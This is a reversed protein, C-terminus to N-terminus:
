WCHGVPSEQNLNQFTNITNRIKNNTLTNERSEKFTQLIINKSEYNMGETKINRVSCHKESLWDQSCWFSDPWSQQKLSLSAWLTSLIWTDIDDEASGRGQKGLVINGLMNTELADMIYNLILLCLYSEEQRLHSAQKWGCRILLRIVGRIRGLYESPEETVEWRSLHSGKKQQM